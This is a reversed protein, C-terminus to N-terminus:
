TGSFRQQYNRLIMPVLMDGYSNINKGIATLSRTHSEISDHFQQLSTLTNSPNPLDILAQLYAKKLKEPKAFRDRLLDVSPVYTDNTLPFGSIVRAAEGQLQARLYTLKQVNSLM